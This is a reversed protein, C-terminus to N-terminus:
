REGGLPIVARPVFPIHSDESGLYLHIKRVTFTFSPEPPLKVAALESPDESRALTLHPHLDPGHEGGYIPFEPFERALHEYLELVPEPDSPELFITGEFQGYRDLTLDFPPCDALLKELRPITEEIEDPSVFPYLLTIHAPLQSGAAEADYAERLPYSFVQVERPPLILLATELEAMM